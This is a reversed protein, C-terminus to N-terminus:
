DKKSKPQNENIFVQVDSVVSANRPSPINELSVDAQSVDAQSVELRHGRKFDAYTLREANNETCSLDNPDRWDDPGGKYTFRNANETIIYKKAQTKGKKMNYSKFTAFLKKKDNKRVSGESSLKKHAMENAAVAADRGKEFEEKYNVCVSKCDNDIAFRRAVVDLIRYPINKREAYYWFAEYEAKYSMIVDGYPTNETTWESGLGKLFDETHDKEELAEFELYYSREYNKTDDRTDQNDQTIAKFDDKMYQSVMMWGITVGGGFVFLLTGLSEIWTHDGM